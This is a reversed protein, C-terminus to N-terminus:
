STVKLLKRYAHLHRLAGRPDGLRELLNALNFHADALGADLALASEYARISEPFRGRDELLIGLNFFATPDPKLELARRYQAEAADLEGAEHQLRGLNVRAEAHRPELEVVREYLERARAPEDDELACARDFLAEVEALPVRRRLAVVSGRGEFDLALQVARGAPQAPARARGSRLPLITAM